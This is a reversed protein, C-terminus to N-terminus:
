IRRINDNNPKTLELLTFELKERLLNSQTEKGIYNIKEIVILKGSVM